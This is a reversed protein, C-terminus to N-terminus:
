RNEPKKVKRTSHYDTQYDKKKTKKILDGIIDSPSFRVISISSAETRMIRDNERVISSVPNNNSPDIKTFSPVNYQNLFSLNAQARDLDTMAGPSVRIEPVHVHESELEVTPNIMISYVKVEKRFYSIHTFVLSDTPTVWLAFVGNLRSIDRYHGNLNIVYVDPIPQGEQDVVKGELLFKEDQATLMLSSFFLLITVITKMKNIEIGFNAITITLDSRFRIFNTLLLANFAKSFRFVM